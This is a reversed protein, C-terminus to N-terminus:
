QPYLQRKLWASMTTYYEPQYHTGTVWDSIMRRMTAEFRHNAAKFVV